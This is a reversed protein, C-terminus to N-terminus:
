HNPKNYKDINWAKHISLTDDDENDSPMTTTTEEERYGYVEGREMLGLREFLQTEIRINM